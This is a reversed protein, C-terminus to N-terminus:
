NMPTETQTLRTDCTASRRDCIAACSRGAVLSRRCAFLSAFSAMRFGVRGFDLISHGVQSLDLPRESPGPNERRRKRCTAPVPITAEYKASTRLGLMSCARMTAGFTESFFVAFFQMKMKRGPAGLLMSVHSRFSPAHVGDSKAGVDNRLLVRGKGWPSIGFVASCRFSRTM